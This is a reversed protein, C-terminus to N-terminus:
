RERHSISDFFKYVVPILFLTFLTSGILGGIIPYSLAAALELGAGIGLILPIMGLISTLTTMVIPRFRKRMGDLVADVLPMGSRRNSIIMDVAIVADNDIAGLMIVIGIISMLNYSQHFLFMTIFAGVLALPSTTLIVLPYIISEYESALIVYVLFISLLIIIILGKLMIQIDEIQGGVKVHYGSPLHLTNVIDQIKGVAQLIGLGHTNAHIIFVRQQNEHAISSYGQREEVKVIERLPISGFSFLRNSTAAGQERNSFATGANVNRIQYDLVAQINNDRENNAPIVRIATKRDFENFYTAIKGQFLHSIENVLSAKDLGLSNIKEDDLILWVQRSTQESEMGLDTLYTARKLRSLLTDTIRQSIALDNGFVQIEIESKRPQLIREFTTAPRAILISVDSTALANNMMMHMSSSMQRPTLQQAQGLRDRLDAIASQVKYGHKVRCDITAKNVSSYLVSYYDERNSIGIDSVVAEIEPMSLLVSEVRSVALSTAELTSSPPLALEVVFRSQDIDPAEETRILFAMGCSVVTIAATAILVPKPNELFRRLLRLYWSMFDQYLKRVVITVLMLKSRGLKESSEENAQAVQNRKRALLSPVLTVAVLLSALLSFTMTLGIDLFLKQAIGKVLVVPLFIAVNTFTSAAVSLNIEKSGDIVADKVSYGQERLRSFNEVIIIANDGIMGIGLALGTLSIINFNVKFFYMLVVTLLISFPTAIGVLLPYRPNRLFLFLVLFALLAGVLIAQEIDSISKSIFEAQDFIVSSHVDPYENNMEALAERVKRSVSVTNAQAEKKIYIVIAERGNVRTFGEREAFGQVVSALQKLPISVLGRQVPVNAIDSLSKFEGITRLSYRFVGKRISGGELNLNAHELARTVDEYTLGFSQLKEPDVEVLIEREAGGAVVAQAVGELQELRKKIVAESFIKLESLRSEMASNRSLFNSDGPGREAGAVDTTKQDMGVYNVGITMISETSPDIRLITPRGANQPLLSRIEDLKERVELMAYDVNTGWYFSVNVLSRAGSSISWVRNVGGVTSVVSEIPKTVTKEIEEPPADKLSTEILLEPIQVPPLFDISMQTFAIVGILAIGLFFMATTVPRSVSTITLSM